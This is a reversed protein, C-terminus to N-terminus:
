GPILVKLHCFFQKRTYGDMLVLWSIFFVPHMQLSLYLSQSFLIAEEILPKLHTKDTFNIKCNKLPSYCCSSIHHSLHLTRIVWCGHTMCLRPLRRCPFFSQFSQLGESDSRRKQLIWNLGRHILVLAPVSCVPTTERELSPTTKWVTTILSQIRTVFKLRESSLPSGSTELDSTDALLWLVSPQQFVSGYSHIWSFTAGGEWAPNFNSSSRVSEKPERHSSLFALM